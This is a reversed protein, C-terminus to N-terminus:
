LVSVIFSFQSQNYKCSQSIFGMYSADLMAESENATVPLYTSGFTILFKGDSGHIHNAWNSSSTAGEHNKM